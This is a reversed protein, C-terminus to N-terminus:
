SRTVSKNLSLTGRIKAIRVMKQLNKPFLLNRIYGQQAETEVAHALYHARVYAVPDKEGWLKALAALFLGTRGIGGYCGVYIPKGAVLHPITQELGQFLVPLPPVNFDMTPVDVDCAAHIEMAMKVGVMSTPRNLYPGGYVTFYRGFHNMLKMSGPNKKNV